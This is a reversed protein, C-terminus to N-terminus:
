ESRFAAGPGEARGFCESTLEVPFRGEIGVQDFSVFTFFWSSAWSPSCCRFLFALTSPSPGVRRRRTTLEVTLAAWLSDLPQDLTKLEARGLLPWNVPMDIPDDPAAAVRGEYSCGCSLILNATTPSWFEPLVFMSRHTVVQGMKSIQVPSFLFSSFFFSCVM